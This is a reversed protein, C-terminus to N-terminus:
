AWRAFIGKGSVLGGVKDGLWDMAGNVAKGIKKGAEKVVKKGGDWIEGAAHGISETLSSGNGITHKWLADVGTYIIAGAAGVVLAPAGAIGAAALGAGVLATTGAKLAVGAGTEIAWEVIARDTIQGGFEEYNSFFSDIGSTIWSVPNAMGAKFGSKFNEGFAAWKGATSPNKLYPGLGFLDKATVKELGRWKAVAGGIKVVSKLTTKLTGDLGLLSSAIAGVIGAKSLADLALKKWSIGSVGAEVSGPEVVAGAVGAGVATGWSAAAGGGSTFPSATGSQTIASSLTHETEEVEHSARLLNRALQSSISNYRDLATAYQRLCHQISAGGVYYGSMPLRLSRNYNLQSGSARDMRSAIGRVTNQCSNLERSLNQLKRAIEEM